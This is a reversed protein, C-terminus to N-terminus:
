EPECTLVRLRNIEKKSLSEEVEQANAQSLVRGCQECAWLYISGRGCEMRHLIWAQRSRCDFCVGDRDLYHM